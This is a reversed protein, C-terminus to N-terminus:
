GIYDQECEEMIDVLNELLSYEPIGNKRADNMYEKAENIYEPLEVTLVNKLGVCRWYFIFTRIFRKILALAM